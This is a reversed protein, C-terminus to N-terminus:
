HNYDIGLVFDTCYASVIFGSDKEYIILWHNQISDGVAVHNGSGHGVNVEVNNNSCMSVTVAAIVCCAFVLFGGGNADMMEAVSMEKILNETKM